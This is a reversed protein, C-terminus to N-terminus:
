PTPVKPSFEPLVDRVGAGCAVLARTEKPEPAGERESVKLNVRPSGPDSIAIFSISCTDPFLFTRISARVVALPGMTSGSRTTWCNFRIPTARGPGPRGSDERIVGLTGRRPLQVPM